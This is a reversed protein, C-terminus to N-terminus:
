RERDRYATKRHLFRWWMPQHSRYREPMGCDCNGAGSHESRHYPHRVWWSLYTPM